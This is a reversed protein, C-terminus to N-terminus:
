VVLWRLKQGVKVDDFPVPLGDACDIACFQKAGDVVPKDDKVISKYIGDYKVSYIIGDDSQLSITDGCNKIVSGEAITRFGFEDELRGAVKCPCDNGNLIVRGIKEAFSLSGCSLRGEIDAAGCLWAGLASLNDFAARFYYVMNAAAKCDAANYPYVRVVNGKGDCIVAPSFAINGAEFMTDFLDAAGHGCGDADVIPLGENACALIPLLSSLAGCDMPMAADVRKGSIYASQRISVLANVGAELLEAERGAVAGPLYYGTIVCAYGGPALESNEILELSLEGARKKSEELMIYAAKLSGGGGVGLLASGTVIALIDNENLKRSM